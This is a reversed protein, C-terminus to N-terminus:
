RIIMPLLSCYKTYLTQMVIDNTTVSDVQYQTKTATMSAEGPTNLKVVLSLMSGNGEALDGVTWQNTLPDYCEPLGCPSSGYSVFEWESPLPVDVTIQTALGPGHNSATVQISVYSGLCYTDLWSQSAVEVDPATYWFADTFSSLVSGSLISSKYAYSNFYDLSPLYNEDDYRTEFQIQASLGGGTIPLVVDANSINVSSALIMPNTLLRLRTGVTGANYVSPSSGLFFASGGDLDSGAADFTLVRDPTMGGALSHKVATLDQPGWWVSTYKDLQIGGIIIELAAAKGISSLDPPNYNRILTSGPLDTVPGIPIVGNRITEPPLSQPADVAEPVVDALVLSQEPSLSFCLLLVILIVLLRPFIAFKKM